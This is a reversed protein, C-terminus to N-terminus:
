GLAASISSMGGSQEDEQQQYTRASGQIATGISGLAESLSRANTDWRVMLKAFEAAALGKWAGALPELKARLAALDSQVAENVSLVHRGAREMEETTTGFGGTNM